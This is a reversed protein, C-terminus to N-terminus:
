YVWMVRMVRTVEPKEPQTSTSYDDSGPGAPSGLLDENISEVRHKESNTTSIDQVFDYAQHLLQQQGAVLLDLFIRVKGLQRSSWFVRVNLEGHFCVLHGVSM